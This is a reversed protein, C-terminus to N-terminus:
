LIQVQFFGILNDPLTMLAPNLVQSNNQIIDFYYIVTISAIVVWMPAPILHFLPNRIRSYSFSFRSKYCLQARSCFEFSPNLFINKISEPIPALQKLTNRQGYLWADCSIAESFNWSWHCCAYGTACFFSFNAPGGLRFLGLFLLSWFYHSLKCLLFIARICTGM